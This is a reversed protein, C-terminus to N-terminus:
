LPTLMKVSFFMESNVCHCGMIINVDIKTELRSVMKNQVLAPLTGVTVMRLLEIRYCDIVIGGGRHKDGVLM